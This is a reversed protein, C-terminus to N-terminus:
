RNAPLLMIVPAGDEYRGFYTTTAAPTVVFNNGTGLLTGGCSGSYWTIVEGTGGGGGTLTLTVSSGNCIMASSTTASTPDASKQNVTITVSACASNYSCPAGDEYRGFYTTTTTPSVSINGTGVLTGGCSTTYWKITEADGGGGGNLTLVTSQGNCITTASATASTPDASKQNVTITVSACASNYNCPSPDEYRGFYTTATTPNVM